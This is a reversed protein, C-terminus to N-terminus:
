KSKKSRKTRVTTPIDDEIVPPEGVAEGEVATQPAVQQETPANGLMTLYGVSQAMQIMAAAQAEATDDNALVQVSVKWQDKDAPQLSVDGENKRELGKGGSKCLYLGRWHDSVVVDTGKIRVGFVLPKLELGKAEAQELILSGVKSVVAGKKDIYTKM